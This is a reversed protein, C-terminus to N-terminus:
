IAALAARLDPWFAELDIAPRRGSRAHLEDLRAAVAESSLELSACEARVVEQSWLAGRRLRIPKATDIASTAARWAAPDSRRDPEVLPGFLTTLALAAAEALDADALAGLLYGRAAPHGFRAVVDLVLPTMPLRQAIRQVPGIDEPAGSLVCVELAFRGLRHALSGGERVDLYPSSDGLLIRTRVAQWAIDADDSSSRARLADWPAARPDMPAMARIASALVAPHADDLFRVCAEPALWERRTLVDIGVSRALPEAADLLDRALAELDPHPSAAIADAVLLAADRADEPLSCTLEFLSRLPETGATMALTLAAAWGAWPDDPGESEAYALIAADTVGAVALADLQALLREEIRARRLLPRVRRHRGLMAARELCDVVIDRHVDDFPAPDARRADISVLAGPGQPRGLLADVDLMSGSTAFVGSPAPEPVFPVCVPSQRDHRPLVRPRDRTATFPSVAAPNSINPTALLRRPDRM